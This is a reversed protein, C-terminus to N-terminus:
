PQYAMKFLAKALLMVGKELDEAKTSEAPNHSVGGISPVFIMGTPYYPAMMQADHGAGSHMMRCSIREEECIGRLLRIIGEDMPVPDEDMWRTIEVSLGLEGAIRVMDGELEETFARLVEKDTHRCDITFSVEGAVVNVINPKIGMKGFTLVLPDGAAEAKKISESCIRSFGYVADFRYGMPTTGAHNAQGKLTIDYRRQGAIGTVIGVSQHNRELVSGQEIHLELFAKIDRRRPLGEDRFDFGAQRMAEPFPVGEGDSLQMVEERGALALLNKSGWFTYPFRSGEEEAFSVVEITRLPKGYNELLYQVALYAGIIGFQGDLAGGNVVTDIHSGSLITEKPYKTGEARGFLNGISDFYANLGIDEFRGKLMNQAEIWSETYLLRSVGGQPDEGIKRLWDVNRQVETMMDEIEMM